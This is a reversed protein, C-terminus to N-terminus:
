LIYCVQAMGRQLVKMASSADAVDVQNLGMVHTVGVSDDM